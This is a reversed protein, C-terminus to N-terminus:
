KGRPCIEKLSTMHEEVIGTLAITDDYGPFAKDEDAKSAELVQQLLTDEDYGAAFVAQYEPPLDKAGPPLDGSGRQGHSRGIDPHNVSQNAARLEECEELPV